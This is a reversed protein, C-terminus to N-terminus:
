VTGLRYCGGTMWSMCSDWNNNNDSATAFDLPHISLCLNGNVRKQNFVMSHAIRFREFQEQMDLARAINGVLKMIKQGESMTVKTGNVTVTVSNGFPKDEFFSVTNGCLMDAKLNFHITNYFFDNVTENDYSLRKLSLAELLASFFLRLFARNDYMFTELDGYLEDDSKTFSIPKSVILQNGLLKYLYESKNIDWFRLVHNVDAPTGIDSPEIAARHNGFQKMDYKDLLNYKRTSGRYSIKKEM